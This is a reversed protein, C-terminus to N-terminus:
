VVSKRDTDGRRLVIVDDEKIMRGQFESQQPAADIQWDLGCVALQNDISMGPEIKHGINLDDFSM